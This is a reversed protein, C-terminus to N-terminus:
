LSVSRRDVQDHTVATRVGRRQQLPKQRSRVFQHVLDCLRHPRRGTAFTNLASQPAGESTLRRERRIRNALYRQPWVKQPPAPCVAKSFARAFPAVDSGNKTLGEVTRITKGCFSVAPVVCTACVCRQDRAKSRYTWARERFSIFRGLAARPITFDVFVPEGGVSGVSGVRLLSMRLRWVEISALIRPRSWAGARSAALKLRRMMKLAQSEHWKEKGTAAPIGRRNLEETIDRITTIGAARM